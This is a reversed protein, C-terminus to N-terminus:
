AAVAVAQRAIWASCLNQVSPRPHFLGAAVTPFHRVDNFSTLVSASREVLDGDPSQMGLRLSSM